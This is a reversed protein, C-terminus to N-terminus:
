EEESQHDHVVDELAQEGDGSQVDDLGGGSRLGDGISGQDSGLGESVSESYNLEDMRRQLDIHNKGIKVDLDALQSGVLSVASMLSTVTTQLTSLNFDVTQQLSSQYNVTSQVLHLGAHLSRLEDAVEPGGPVNTARTLEHENGAQKTSDDNIAQVDRPRELTDMRKELANLREAGASVAATVMPFAMCDTTCQSLSLCLKDSFCELADMRTNLATQDQAVENVRKLLVTIKLGWNINSDSTGGIQSAGDIHPTSIVLLICVFHTVKVQRFVYM